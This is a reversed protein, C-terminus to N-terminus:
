PSQELSPADTKYEIVDALRANFADRLAKGKTGTALGYAAQLETISVSAAALFADLSVTGELVSYAAQVDKIARKAKGDKLHWGPLDDPNEALYGKYAALMTECLSKANVVRALFASGEEGIQLVLKGSEPESDFSRALIPEIAAKAEPCFALAPCHKCWAGFIRPLDLAEIDALHWRLLRLGLEAELPDYYAVSVPQESNPQLIAVTFFQIAPYNYHALAVLERLQDNSDAPAVPHMLTKGDIILMAEFDTTVYAVDYRGSCLPTIGNHLWLREERAFLAVERTGAWDTVLMQELRKLKELTELEFRSLDADSEGAWAAHVRNGLTAGRGEASRSDELSRPEFQGTKKLHKILQHRGLCRRRAYADSASPLDLRESDIRHDNM